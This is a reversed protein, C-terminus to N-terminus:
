GIRYWTKNVGDFRLRWFGGATMATPAGSLSAGNASITLSSILQTSHCLLQQGDVCLAVAPLVVAGAAYGALPTLLLYVSAGDVPPAISVSFGTASPSAYQTSMEGQTTLLGQMVTALDAVSARRDVGSTPDYFPLQSASTIGSQNLRQIAM